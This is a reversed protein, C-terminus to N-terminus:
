VSDGKMRGPLNHGSIMWKIKGMAGVYWGWTPYDVALIGIPTIGVGLSVAGM